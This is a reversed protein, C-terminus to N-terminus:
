LDRSWPESALRRDITAASMSVLLEATDEDIVLGRFSAVSRGTRRAHTGAAQRGANGVGDLVGDIGRHCRTRVETTPCKKCHRDQAAAGIQAGQPCPQSALRYQRM